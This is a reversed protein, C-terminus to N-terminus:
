LRLLVPGNQQEPERAVVSACMRACAWGWTSGWRVSPPRSEGCGSLVLQQPAVHPRQIPQSSIQRGFTSTTQSRHSSSEQVPDDGHRGRCMRRHRRRQGYHRRRRERGRGVVASEARQRRRSWRRRLESSGERAALMIPSLERVGCADHAGPRDHAADGRRGKQAPHTRRGAGLQVEMGELKSAWSGPGEHARARARVRVNQAGLSIADGHAARVSVHRRLPGVRKHHDVNAVRRRWDDTAAYHRQRKEIIHTHLRSSQAREHRRALRAQTRM